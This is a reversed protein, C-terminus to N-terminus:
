NQKLCKMKINRNAMKLSAWDKLRFAKHKEKLNQKIQPTIWPKSNPYKYVTKVPITALICFKIYDTILSVIMLLEMLYIGFLAHWPAKSNHLPM